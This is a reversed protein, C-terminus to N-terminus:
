WNGWFDIVLVKGRYDSLKFKTGNEDISEFDPAVMGIQLHDLEFLFAEASERYTRGHPALDGFEEILREFYKRGEVKQEATSRRGCSMTALSFLASAKVEKHESKDLMTQLAAKARDAGAMPGYAYVLTPPLDELAKSQMTETLLLDLTKQADEKKQFDCYISLEEIRAKASVDSGKAEVALAEFEALFELGPRHKMVEDREEETLDKKLNKRYYDNTTTHVREILAELREAPTGKQQAQTPTLGFALALVLTLWAARRIMENM